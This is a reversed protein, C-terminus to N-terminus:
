CSAHGDLIGAERRVKPRSSDSLQEADKVYLGGSILKPLLTENVAADVVISETFSM